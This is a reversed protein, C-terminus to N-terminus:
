KTNEETNDNGNIKCDIIQIGTVEKIYYKITDYEVSNDIYIYLHKNAYM